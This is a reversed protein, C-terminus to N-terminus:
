EDPAERPIFVGDPYVEVERTDGAAYGLMKAAASPITVTVSGNNDQLSMDETHEPNGLYDRVPESDPRM